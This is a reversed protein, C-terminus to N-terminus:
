LARFPLIFTLSRSSLLTVQIGMALCRSPLCMGACALSRSLLVDVALCRRPLCAEDVICATKHTARGSLNYFSVTLLRSWTSDLLTLRSNFLRTEPLWCAPIHSQSCLFQVSALRRFQCNCFLRLFSILNHLSSEM